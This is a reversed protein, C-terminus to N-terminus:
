VGPPRKCKNYWKGEGEGDQEVTYYSGYIRLDPNNVTSSSGSDFQLGWELGGTVNSGYNGLEPSGLLFPYSGGEVEGQELSLLTEISLTDIARSTSNSVSGIVPVSSGHATSATASVGSTSFTILQSLAIALVYPLLNCIVRTRASYVSNRVKWIFEVLGYPETSVLIDTPRENVTSDFLRRALCKQLGHSLLFGLVWAIATVATNVVQQPARM